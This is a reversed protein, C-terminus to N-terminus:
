HELTYDIIGELYDYDKYLGNDIISYDNNIM